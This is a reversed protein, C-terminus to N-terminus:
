SAAALDGAAAWVEDPVFRMGQLVLVPEADLTGVAAILRAPADGLLAEHRAAPDGGVPRVGQIEGIAFAVPGRETRVAVFRGVPASAGGLLRAVDVVLTPAGRMICIGSVFPPTGALPHTVLPRMTEIVDDIRLACLLPGARFVLSPVGAPTGAPAGIHGPHVM